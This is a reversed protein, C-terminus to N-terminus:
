AVANECDSNERLWALGSLRPAESVAVALLVTVIKQILKSKKAEM